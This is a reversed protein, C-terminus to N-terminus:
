VLVEIEDYKNILSVTEHINSYTSAGFLISEVNPLTCVYEIAHNVSAAGGSLVQMAIARVQKNMLTEEYIKKGGSM